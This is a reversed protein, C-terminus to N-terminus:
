SKENPQHATANRSISILPFVRESTSMERLHQINDFWRTVNSFHSRNHANLNVMIPHIVAFLALDTLSLRNNSGLFVKLVLAENLKSLDEESSKLETEIYQMWHEHDPSVDLHEDEFQTLLKDKM